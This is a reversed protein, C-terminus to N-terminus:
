LSSDIIFLICVLDLCVFGLPCAFKLCYFLKGAASAFHDMPYNKVSLKNRILAKIGNFLKIVSVSRIYIFHLLAIFLVIFILALLLVLNKYFLVAVICLGKIIIIYL